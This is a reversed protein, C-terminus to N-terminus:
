SVNRKSPFLWTVLLSVMAASFGVVAFAGLVGLSAVLGSMVNSFWVRLQFPVWLVFTPLMEFMWISVALSLLAAGVGYIARVEFIRRKELFARLRQLKRLVVVLWGDAGDIDNPSGGDYLNSSKEMENEKM